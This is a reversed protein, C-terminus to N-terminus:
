VEAITLDRQAGRKVVNGREGVQLDNAITGPVSRTGDTTGRSLGFKQVSGRDNFGCDRRQREQILQLSNFRPVATLTELPPRRAREIDVNQEVAILDRFGLHQRQRM